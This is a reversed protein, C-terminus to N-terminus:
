FFESLLWVAAIAHPEFTQGAPIYYDARGCLLEPRLTPFAINFTMM